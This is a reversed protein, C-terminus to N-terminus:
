ASYSVFEVKLSLFKGLLRISHMPLWSAGLFGLRPLFFFRAIRDTFGSYNYTAKLWANKV